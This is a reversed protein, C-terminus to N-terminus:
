KDTNLCCMIKKIILNSTLYCLNESKVRWKGLHKPEELDKAKGKLKFSGVSFDQKSKSQCQMSEVYWNLSFQCKSMVSDELGHACYREGYKQVKIKQLLNQLKWQIPGKYRKEFRDM